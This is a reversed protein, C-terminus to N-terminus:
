TPPLKVGWWGITKGNIVCFCYFNCSQCQTANLLMKNSIITGFRTDRVQGLTWINPLVWVPCNWNKSKQDIGWLLFNDYTWFWDHYQSSVQILLYVQCSFYFGMLIIQRHHWIWFFIIDNDINWNIALKSCDPLRIESM